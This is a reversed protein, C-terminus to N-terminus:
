SAQMHMSVGIQDMLENRLVSYEDALDQMARTPVGLAFLDVIRALRQQPDPEAALLLAPILKGAALNSTILLRNKDNDNAFRALVAAARNVFVADLSSEPADILITSAHDPAAVKILAMRFALDIFERQSESVQEPGDRRVTDGFNAGSMDVSFGPYEVQRAGELGAQGISTTRPTWSLSCSELLFGHAADEFEAKVADSFGRIRDRYASMSGAFEDRQTKLEARLEIVRSRLSALGDGQQRAVQEEPPLQRVLATEEDNAEALQVVCEALQRSIDAYRATSEDFQARRAKAAQESQDVAERLRAIREDSIPEAGNAPAATPADCLICLNGDIAAVLELRKEERGETGCVLCQDDAMLRSFIYRMSQSSTPYKDGIATLRARELEHVAQHLAEDARMSDLRHRHRLTDHDEVQAILTDRVTSLQEVQHSAEALAARIGPAAQVRRQTNALEREERTLSASLNRMRSDLKLIEREADTWAKSENPELLLCRLLQRQAAPDWVLMRREEFFFVMTRLLFIWEGFTGVNTAAVLAGQLDKENITSPTGDISCSILGIDRLSREVVFRRAGITFTLTATASEAGDLVRASFTLRKSRSLETAELDVTGIAGDPLPVDFPGTLMRFLLNFLTSKGLGNAGLVVSLGPVLNIDLIGDRHQGPYLGYGRVTLQELVPFHTM